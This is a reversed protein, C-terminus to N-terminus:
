EQPLLGPPLAGGGPPLVVNVGGEPPPPLEPEGTLLAIDVPDGPALSATQGDPAVVKTGQPTLFVNAVGPQVSADPMDQIAPAVSPQSIPSPTPLVSPAVPRPAPASVAVPRAVPRPKPAPAAPRPDGAQSEPQMLVVEHLLIETIELLKQCATQLSFHTSANQFDFKLSGHIDQAYKILKERYQAM